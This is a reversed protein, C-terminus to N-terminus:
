DVTKTNTSTSNFFALAGDGIYETKESLVLDMASLLKICGMFMGDSITTVKNALAVEILNIDYAFAYKGVGIKEGDENQEFVVRNLSSSGSFAYDGIM